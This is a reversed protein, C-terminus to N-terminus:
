SMVENRAWRWAFGSKTRESRFRSLWSEMFGWLLWALAIAAFLVLLLMDFRRPAVSESLTQELTTLNYIPQEPDIEAVERRVAPGLSAPDVSTRLALQM